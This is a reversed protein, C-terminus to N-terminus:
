SSRRRKFMRKVWRPTLIGIAEAFTLSEEGQMEIHLKPGVRRKSPNTQSM